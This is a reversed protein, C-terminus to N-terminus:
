HMSFPWTHLGAEVRVVVGVGMMPAVVYREEAMVMM